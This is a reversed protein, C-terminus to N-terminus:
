CNACLETYAAFNEETLKQFAFAVCWRQKDSMCRGELEGNFRFRKAIDKVFGEAYLSVMDLITDALDSYEFQKGRGTLDYAFIGDIANFINKVNGKRLDSAMEINTKMATTTQKNM